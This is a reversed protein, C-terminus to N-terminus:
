MVDSHADSQCLAGRPNNPSASQVGLHHQAQLGPCSRRASKLHRPARVSQPSSQCGLHPPQCGALHRSGANCHMASVAFTPAKFFSLAEVSAEAESSPNFCRGAGALPFGLVLSGSSRGPGLNSDHIGHAAPAVNSPQGALRGTSRFKDWSRLLLRGHSGM